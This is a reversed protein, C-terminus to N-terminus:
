LESTPQLSKLLDVQEDAHYSSRVLPGSEVVKFGLELGLERFYDFEDPEVYRHVPVQNRTPQLYQGITFIQCGTQVVDRMLTGVESPTEGIGVMIGSKVTMGADAALRLVALSRNYAAQPRIRPAISRVTEMNHALIEPKTDMVTRLAGRDGKFDGILIEVSCDSVRAHIADITAAWIGAGGDPLDDRDVSTIVCHKLGMAEVARAVRNPENHDIAFPRGTKISCFACSRTCIDGLIMLTATRRNWCDYVNPCRAEACVTNLKEEHVLRQLENYNKGTTIRIKMWDPRRTRPTGSKTSLKMEHNM